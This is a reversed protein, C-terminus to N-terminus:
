QESTTVVCKDYDADCGQERQDMESGDLVRAQEHKTQDEANAGLDSSAEAHRDHGM